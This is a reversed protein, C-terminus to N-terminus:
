CLRRPFPLPAPGLPAPRFADGAREYKYNLYDGQGLVSEPKLGIQELRVPKPNSSHYKELQVSNLVYPNDKLFEELNFAM